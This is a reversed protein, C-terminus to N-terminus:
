PTPAEQDPAQLGAMAFATSTPMDAGFMGEISDVDLALALRIITSMEPLVGNNIANQTSTSVGSRQYLTRVSWGRQTRLQLVRTALLTALQRSLDNIEPDSPPFSNAMSLTFLLSTIQRSNGRCSVELVFVFM